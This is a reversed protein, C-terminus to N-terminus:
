PGVTILYGDTELYGSVMRFENKIRMANNPYAGGGSDKNIHLNYFWCSPEPVGFGCDETGYLEVIGGTPHFSTAGPLASFGYFTRIRGGTINETFNGTTVEVGQNTFDLLGGTMTVAANGGARPWFAAGGGGTFRMEGGNIIFIGDLDHTSTSLSESQGLVVLGDDIRYYGNVYDENLDTVTMTGGYCEVKGGQFLKSVQLYSGEALMIESPSDDNLL